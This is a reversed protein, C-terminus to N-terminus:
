VTFTNSVAFSFLKSLFWHQWGSLTKQKRAQASCSCGTHRGLIDSDGSQLKWLVQPSRKWPLSKVPIHLSSQRHEVSPQGPVVPSSIRKQLITFTTLILLSVCASTERSLLCWLCQNVARRSPFLVLELACHSATVNGAPGWVLPKQTSYM